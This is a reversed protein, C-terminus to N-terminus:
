QTPNREGTICQEFRGDATRRWRTGVADTFELKAIGYQVSAGRSEYNQPETIDVAYEWGTREHKGYKSEIFHSGQALYKYEVPWKPFDAGSTVEIRLESLAIKNDIKLGWRKPQQQCAWVVQVQEAIRRANERKAEEKMENSHQITWKRFEEEADVRQQELERIKDQNDRITKESESTKWISFLSICIAAVSSLSGVWEAASGTFMTM